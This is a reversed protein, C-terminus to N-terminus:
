RSSKKENPTPTLLTGEDSAVKLLTDESDSKDNQPQIVINLKWDQTLVSSLKIIESDSMILGLKSIENTDSETSRIVDFIKINEAIIQITGTDNKQNISILDIINENQLDDPFTHVDDKKIYVLKKGSPIFNAIGGSLGDKSNGFFSANLVDGKKAPLYIKKGILTSVHDEAIGNVPQYGKVFTQFGIMEKTIIEQSYIDKNAVVIRVTEIESNRNL